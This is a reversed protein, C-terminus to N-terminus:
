WRCELFKAMFDDISNFKLLIQDLHAKREIVYFVGSNATILQECTEKPMNYTDSFFNQIDSNKPAISGETLFRHYLAYLFSPPELKQPVFRKQRINVKEMLGFEIFTALVTNVNKHDIEKGLLKFIAKKADDTTITATETTRLERLAATIIPHVQVFHYYLAEKKAQKSFTANVFALLLTDLVRNNEYRIFRRIIEGVARKRMGPGPRPFWTELKERLADFDRIKSAFELATLSEEVYPYTAFSTLRQENM